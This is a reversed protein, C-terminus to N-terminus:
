ANILFLAYGPIMAIPQITFLQKLIQFLFPGKSFFTGLLLTKERNGGRKELGKSKLVFVRHTKGVRGRQV